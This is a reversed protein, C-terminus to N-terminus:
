RVFRIEERPIAEGIRINVLESYGKGCATCRIKEKSQVVWGAHRDESPCRWEWRDPQRRDVEFRAQDDALSESM